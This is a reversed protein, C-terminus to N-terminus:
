DARLSAAPDVRSARMAPVAAAVVAVVLLVIAVAAFVLPDRPSVEFLLPRIWRGSALSVGM